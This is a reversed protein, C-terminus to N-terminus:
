RQLIVAYTNTGPETGNCESDWNSNSEREMSEAYLMTVNPGVTPCNFDSDYMYNYGAASPGLPDAPITGFFSSLATDLAGGEGIVVGSDHSPYSGYSDKYLKLALQLQEIDSMRQTDRARERMGSYTGYIVTSLIAIVACSVIIEVLTFGKKM